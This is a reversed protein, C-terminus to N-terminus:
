GFPRVTFKEAMKMLRGIAVVKNVSAIAKAPM